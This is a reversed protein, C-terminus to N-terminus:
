FASWVIAPRGSRTPRRGDTEILGGRHHLRNIAAGATQHLMGLTEEAEDCTFGRKPRKNALALVRDDVTPLDVSRRANTSTDHM